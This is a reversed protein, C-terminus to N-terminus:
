LRGKYACRRLHDRHQEDLVGQWDALQRLKLDGGLYLELFSPV